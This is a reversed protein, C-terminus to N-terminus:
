EGARDGLMPLYRGRRGLAVEPALKRKVQPRGGGVIRGPESWGTGYSRRCSATAGSGLFAAVESTAAFEYLPGSEPHHVLWCRKGTEAEAHCVTYLLIPNPAHSFKVAVSIFDEGVDTHGLELLLNRDRDGVAAKLRLLDDTDIKLPRYEITDIM